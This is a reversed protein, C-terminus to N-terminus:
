SYLQSSDFCYRWEIGLKAGRFDLIVRDGLPMVLLAPPFLLFEQLDEPVWILREQRPNVVWGQDDLTWHRLLDESTLMHSSTIAPNPKTSTRTIYRALASPILSRSRPHPDLPIPQFLPQGAQSDWIRITKDRSCSAIYAGDPSYVVSRVSDTHGNLPQGVPQGTQADWIRATGDSSGSVIYAGDPSYAVSNIGPQGAGVPVSRSSNGADFGQKSHVIRTIRTDPDMSSEGGGRLRPGMAKVAHRLMPAYRTSVPRDEPWFPLASVYIHPTSESVVSSSFAAVFKWCDIVLDRITVPCEVEQLWGHVGMLLEFAASIHHKLNMVEMWLLLRRSLFSHLATLLSDALEALKLHTAWYRSAYWMAQLISENVRDDIRAVDRDLLYSSELNCVNFPPSAASYMAFCLQAMWTHDREVDCYFRGSREPDVLYSAFSDHLTMVLDGADSVHTVPLLPLLVTDVLRDFDLRLLGAVANMTVPRQACLVTRLVLMVEARSSSELDTQDVAEELVAAYLTDIDRDTAIEIYSSIDLLRKLREALGPVNHQGIYKVTSAAYLFWGGSRRILCEIDHESLGLPELEARLYAGVDQQTAAHDVEHLRLEARRTGFQSAIMRELIGPNQRSGVLFRVPLGASDKFCADLIKNVGDKDECEDLADLVIVVDAGFTHGIDQFPVAILKEFQEGVPGNCLEPGQEIANSAVEFVRVCASFRVITPTFPGFAHRNGNLLASLRELGDWNTNNLYINPETNPEPKSPTHDRSRFLRRLGHEVRDLATKVDSKRKPAMVPHSLPLYNLNFGNISRVVLGLEPSSRPCMLSIYLLRGGASVLSTYGSCDMNEGLMAGAVRVLNMVLSILVKHLGNLLHFLAYAHVRTRVYLGLIQVFRVIDHLTFGTRSPHSPNHHIIKLAEQFANIAETRDTMNQPMNHQHYSRFRKSYAYGLSDLREFRHRNGAPTLALAQKHLMVAYDLLNFNPELRYKSMFAKGLM